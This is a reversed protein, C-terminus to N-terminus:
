APTGILRIQAKIRDFYEPVSIVLPQSVGAPNWVLRDRLIEPTNRGQTWREFIRAGIDLILYDPVGVDMYYERKTVRDTRISSPSIVEAALILSRVNAWQFADPDISSAGGQPIVFVDPQTITGPELELDAPSVFPVGIPENELYADLISALRTVAYQHASGPAPTVILEGGILEYRPWPRSEDMLARVEATTWHRRIAAMGM